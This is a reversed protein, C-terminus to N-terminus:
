FKFAALVFNNHNNANALAVGCKWGSKAQARTPPCSIKKYQGTGHFKVFVTKCTIRGKSNSKLTVLTNTDALAAGLKAGKKYLSLLCYYSAKPKAGTAKAIVTQGAKPKRPSVTAKFATKSTAHSQALAVPATAGVLCISAAAGAALISKRM